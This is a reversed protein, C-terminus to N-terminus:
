MVDLLNRGSGKRVIEYGLEKMAQSEREILSHLIEDEEESLCVNESSLPKCHEFDLLNWATGPPDYPDNYHDSVSYEVKRNAPDFSYVEVAEAKKELLSIIGDSIEGDPFAPQYGESPECGIAAVFHGPRGSEWDKCLLTIIHEPRMEEYMGIMRIKEEESKIVAELHRALSIGEEDERMLREQYGRIVQAKGSDFEIERDFGGYGPLYLKMGPGSVLTENLLM